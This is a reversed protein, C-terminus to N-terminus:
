PAFFIKYRDKYLRNGKLAARASEKPFDNDNVMEVFNDYITEKEELTDFLIVRRNCKPNNRHGNYKQADGISPHLPDYAWTPIICLKNNPYM